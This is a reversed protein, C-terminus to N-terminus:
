KFAVLADKYIPRGGKLPLVSSSNKEGNARNGTFAPASGGLLWRARGGKRLESSWAKALEVRGEQFGPSLHATGSFHFVCVCVCWASREGEVITETYKGHFTHGTSLIGLIAEPPSKLPYFFNFLRPKFSVISATQPFHPNM